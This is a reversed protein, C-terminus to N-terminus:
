ATISTLEREGFSRSFRNLRVRLDARYRASLEDKQRETLLEKVAVSVKESNVQQRLHAAYFKAAELITKGEFPALERVAALADRRVDDPIAFSKVGDNKAQIRAQDAILKAEDYDRVTRRKRIGDTNAPLHVQWYVEGNVLTKRPEFPDKGRRKQYKKLPGIKM